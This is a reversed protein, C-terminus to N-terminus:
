SVPTDVIDLRREIRGARDDRASYAEDLNHLDGQVGHVTTRLARVKGRVEGVGEEINGLRAPMAKLVDYILANSVAAM